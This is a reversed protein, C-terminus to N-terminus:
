SKYLVIPMNTGCNAYIVAAASEPLNVCGHSGYTQYINGGFSTRWSADHLGQGDCFPMWYKVEVDWSNSGGGGQGVLNFPSAKYAIAYAGQVTEREQNPTGTVVDTELILGGDRYMWLHQLTLDVEIYNGNLDDNGNRSYGAIEYIPEREVATNKGLDEMLKVYEGDVDVRYGYENNDIAIRNGYATVFSRPEYITNHRTSFDYLFDYITEEDLEATGNRIKLWGEITEWDVTEKEAGFLYTIKADKYRNYVAAVANLEESDKTIDPQRYIYSPIEINLFTGSIDPEVNAVADKVIKQLDADDFETGYVEERIYYDDGGRELSANQTLIRPTELNDSIIVKKLTDEDLKLPLVLEYNRGFLFRWPFFTGQNQILEELESQLRAEDVSYGMDALTVMLEMRGDEWLKVFTSDDAGAFLETVEDVSMGTIDCGNLTSVHYFRGKMQLLYLVHIAIIIILVAAICLGRRRIQSVRQDQIRTKQFSSELRM